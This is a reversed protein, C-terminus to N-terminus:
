RMGSAKMYILQNSRGQAIICLQQLAWSEGFICSDNCAQRERKQNDNKFLLQTGSVLM